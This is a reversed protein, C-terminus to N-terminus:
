LSDTNNSNGGRRKRYVDNIYRDFRCAAFYGMVVFAILVLGLIINKM